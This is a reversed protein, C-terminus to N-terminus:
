KILEDFLIKCDYAMDCENDYWLHVCNYDNGLFKFISINPIEYGLHIQSTGDNYKEIFYQIDELTSETFIFLDTDQLITQLIKM